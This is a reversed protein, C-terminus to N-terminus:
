AAVKLGAAVDLGRTTLSVSGNGNRSAALGSEVLWRIIEDAQGACWSPHLELLVTADFVPREVVGWRSARRSGFHVFRPDRRLEAEVVRKRRRVAVALECGPLPGRQLIVVELRDALSM